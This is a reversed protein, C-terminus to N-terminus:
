GALQIGKITEGDNEYFAKVAYYEKKNKVGEIPTGAVEWIGFTAVDLVGHMAARAASGTPVQGQFTESILRGSAGKSSSVPTLGKGILCGRVKCSGLTNADVGDSHAAMFVSCGSVFFVGIFIASKKIKSM